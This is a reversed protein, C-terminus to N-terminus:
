PRPPEEQFLKVNIAAVGKPTQELEFSVRMGKTIDGTINNIHVFISDKNKADRIFGYGKDNNFSELVGTHIPDADERSAPAAGLQIDELNIERLRTRDPPTSSINGNEDVFALMDDLSRGKTANARREEMKEEKDRRKKLRQKEKEKKGFTEKSKAM